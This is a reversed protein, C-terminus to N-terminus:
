VTGVWQGISHNTLPNHTPKAWHVNDRGSPILSVFTNSIIDGSNLYFHFRNDDVAQKAGDLGWGPNEGPAFLNVRSFNLDPHQDFVEILENAGLSHASADLQYNPYKDQVDKLVDYIEEENGSQNNLLIHLDSMVDGGTKTGRLAVHIEQDAQDVWISFRDDGLTADRKWDSVDNVRDSQDKYSQQIIEAYKKDAESIRNEPSDYDFFQFWENFEPGLGVTNWLGHFISNAAEALGGGKHFDKSHDDHAIKEMHMRSGITGPHKANKILKLSTPLIKQKPARIQKHLVGTGLFQNAVQRFQHFQTENMRLVDIVQEHHSRKPM